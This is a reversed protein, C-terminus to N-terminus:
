FQFYIFDLSQRSRFILIAAFALGALAVKVAVPRFVRSTGWLSDIWLPLSYVGALALLYGGAHWDLTSQAAPSLTLARWLFALDTERFILWGVLTLAFM